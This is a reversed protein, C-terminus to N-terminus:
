TEIQSPPIPPLWGASQASRVCGAQRFLRLVYFQVQQWAIKGDKWLRLVRPNFEALLNALQYPDFFVTAVIDWIDEFDRAAERDHPCTLAKHARKIDDPFDDLHESFTHITEAWGEKAWAPIAETVQREKEGGRMAEEVM